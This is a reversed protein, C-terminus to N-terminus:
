LDLEAERLASLNEGPAAQRTPNHHKYRCLRTAFRQKPTESQLDERM